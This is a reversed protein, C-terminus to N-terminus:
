KYMKTKISDIEKELKNKVVVVNKYQLELSSKQNRIESIEIEKDLNGKYNGSAFIITTVVLLGSNMEVNNFNSLWNKKTQDKFLGHSNIYQISNDILNKFNEKKSDDYINESTTGNGMYTKKPITVKKTFHLSELRTVIASDSGLYLTLSAKLSAKWTNAQQVNQIADLQKKSANLVKIANTKKFLM